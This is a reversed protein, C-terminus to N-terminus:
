NIAYITDAYASWGDAAKYSAVSESPVYINIASSGSAFINTGVPPTTAYSIITHLATCKAFARGGMNTMTSPLTAISLKTCGEFVGIGSGDNSKLQTVGGMNLIETLGSNQFARRGLSKLNPCDLVMEAPVFKYAADGINTASRPINCKVL